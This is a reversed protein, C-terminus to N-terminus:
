VKQFFDFNSIIDKEEFMKGEEIFYECYDGYMYDGRLKISEGYKKAAELTEFFGIQEFHHDNITYLIYFSKM